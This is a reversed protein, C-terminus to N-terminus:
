SHASSRELITSLVRVLSTEFHELTYYEIFKKQGEDGMSKTIEPKDLLIKIKEALVIPDKAPVLFGTKGDDIIDPIAGEFTSIVPLGCQMAELIVLPFCEQPYDTPLVYIDSNYFANTKDENYVPGLFLIKKELQHSKVYNLLTDQFSQKWISGAIWLEINTHGDQILLHVGKILTFVGKSEMLSALFLIRFTTHTTKESYPMVPVGNAVIYPFYLGQIFQIDKLLKQSLIIVHSKNFILECLYSQWTHEFARFGKSHLHLVVKKRFIKVLAILCVDRYFSFGKTSPTIYVLDIQQHMLLYFTKWYVALARYIKNLKFRSIDKISSAGTLNIYQSCFTENIVRSHQIYQNM